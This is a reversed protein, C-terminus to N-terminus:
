RSLKCHVKFCYGSLTDLTRSLVPYGPVDLKDALKSLNWALWLM